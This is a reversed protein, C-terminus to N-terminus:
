KHLFLILIHTHVNRSYLATGISGLQEAVDSSCYQLESLVLSKFFDFLVCLFWFPHTFHRVRYFFNGTVQADTSRTDRCSAYILDEQWTVSTCSIAVKRM